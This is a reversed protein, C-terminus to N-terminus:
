TRSQQTYLCYYLQRRAILEEHTGQEAIVGSQMFLIWDAHTISNLRHTIFFCTRDHFRQILNECVRRETDYDLASTAEDFILLRPKRAVVRAIAIRQRQGGSLSSGREGVPTNYGDALQMIFDHAEAVKAAEIVADDSLNEFLTINDRITGDFLVADQPVIGIQQRLSGLSVKGIDYNDIYIQGSQPLYLRPLLKMLTSKGSGSQGVIGVFSRPPIQLSVNMLQLQGPRFAFSVEQYRVEGQIQPMQLNGQSQPSEETPSDAIDALLEMSLSTEQFQQWLGALRLLPGTVYGALIRFAILGGLSLTGELVSQAGIWLVLLSSVTNLFSNFSSFVTSVTSTKFGSTLYQVYRDRWTAEVLSEIHQAKVTFVGGLIEVLYSQVKAGFDARDRLMQRQITVVLLTSGVIIPVTLLVCITLRASYLFMVGIYFVSFIVDLVATLATGTLFQRINELESLRSSLEGVPRKEFFQLPLHLLHRVIEIGLHLDIRNATSAFLYMRLITLGGEFFACLLMLVGFMTMAGPNAGVIVSDVVQQILLPNALGLLQVFLSAVLVQVLISRQTILIPIFWHFGFQKIPTQPLRELIIAQCTEGDNGTLYSALETPTLRLLGTRPSGVIALDPSVEHLVTLVNGCQVLAPTTLRNIGGATPTFRVLPANFGVAEAIRPCLDFLDAPDISRQRLWRRLSDPRYPVQFRECIMGFCAVIDEATDALPSRWIPYHKAPASVPPADFSISPSSTQPSLHFQVSAKELGFHHSNGSILSSMWAQDIGLLRVPFLPSRSSCLSHLPSNVAIETGIPVALAEGGSVIWIRDTPLQDRFHNFSVTNPYWHQAVALQNQIIQQVWDKLHERLYPASLHHAAVALFRSLTDFVEVASVQQMLTPLLYQLAISEFEDAALALTLIKQEESSALISARVSGVAVRRILSDWGIVSGKELVALTPNQYDAPGLIRVREQVVYHVVSPLEQSPYILEGPQFSCLQVKAAIQKQLKAPLHNFPWAQFFDPLFTQISTDVYAM